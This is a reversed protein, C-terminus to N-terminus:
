GRLAFSVVKGQEFWADVEAVISELESPDESDVALLFRELLAAERDKDTEEVPALHLRRVGSLQFSQRCFPCIRAHTPISMLCARCFVHGCPLSHPASDTGDVFFQEYCVDCSSSPHILLM